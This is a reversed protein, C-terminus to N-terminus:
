HCRRSTTGYAMCCYYRRSLKEHFVRCVVLLIESFIDKEGFLRDEFFRAELHELMVAVNGKTNPRAKSDM